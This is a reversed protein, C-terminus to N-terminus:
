LEVRRSVEYRARDAMERIEEIAGAAMHDVLFEFPMGAVRVVLPWSERPNAHTYCLFREGMRNHTFWMM